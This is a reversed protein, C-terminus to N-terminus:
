GRIEDIDRGIQEKLEEFSAFAREPRLFRRFLVRSASPDGTPPELLHVELVPSTWAREGCTPARGFNAIGRRGDLEVEYVGCALPTEVAFNLTPFGLTRGVGKGARLAGVVSYRRGLMAEAEALDGSALARRIRSSSVVEGAYLVEPVVEVEHGHARLWDVNGEGGRGFRWDAGCRVVVDKLYRAAFDDASMAALSDTFDLVTAPVGLAALRDDLSMILRPERAPDLVSLPHNRFTLARDSSELIKRHGLHVGDFFGVALRELGAERM